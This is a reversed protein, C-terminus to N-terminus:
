SGEAKPLEFLIGIVELLQALKATGVSGDLSLIESSTTGDPNLSELIALRGNFRLRKFYRTGNEDVAIVVRGDLAKMETQDTIPSRTILFQGDLAIPEASRGSVGFLRSGNLARIVASADALASVEDKSSRKQVSANGGSFLTGVIKRCSKREKAIIIPEVLTTPDVSQGTLVAIGPHGEVENYRRALLREGVAAVVLNRAHVPAHNCVIVVDGVGAVPDLTSTTM